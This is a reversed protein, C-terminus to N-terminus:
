EPGGCGTRQLQREKNEGDQRGDRNLLERSLWKGGEVGAQYSM